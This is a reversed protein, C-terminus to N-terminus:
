SSGARRPTSACWPTSWPRGSTSATAFRPTPRRAQDAGGDARPLPRGWVTSCGPQMAPSLADYAAYMSAFCTDGGVPPLGVARLISGMPPSQMYTNDAHWSDAGEGKPAVQDLVIIEPRPSSTTRFPPLGIPGFRAAFRIHDDTTM